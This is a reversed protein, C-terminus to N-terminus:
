GTKQLKEPVMQDEKDKDKVERKRKIISTPPKPISIPFAQSSKAKEVVEKAKKLALVARKALLSSETNIEATKKSLAAELNSIKANLEINLLKQESVDEQLHKVIEDYKQKLNEEEVNMKSDEAQKAKHEELQQNAKQLQDQLDLNLKQAEDLNAEKSKNEEIQKNMEKNQKFLRINDTKYKNYIVFDKEKQAESDAILRKLERIEGEYSEQDKEKLQKLSIYEQSLTADSSEAIRQKETELASKLRGIEQDKLNLSESHSENIATIQEQLRLHEKLLESYKSSQSSSKLTEFSENFAKLLADLSAISFNSIESIPIGYLTSKVKKIFEELYRYDNDIKRNIWEIGIVFILIWQYFDLNLNRIM